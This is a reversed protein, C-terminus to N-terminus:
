QSIQMLKQKVQNVLESSSLNEKALQKAIQSAENNGLRTSLLTKILAEKDPAQDFMSALIDDSTTTKLNDIHKMMQDTIQKDSQGNTKIQKAIKKLKTKSFVSGLIQEVTAQKNSSQELRGSIEDRNAKVNQRVNRIDKEINQKQENTLSNNQKVQQELQRM